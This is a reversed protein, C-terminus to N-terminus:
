RSARGRAEKLFLAAGNKLLTRALKKAAAQAQGCPAAIEGKVWANDNPSFVAASMWFMNKVSKTVVGVPVRCGGQLEKLLAREASVEHATPPHHLSQAIKLTEKDNKRGQIALAGQGVAPLMHQTSIVTARDLFKNLRLLGARAVVVADLTHHTLVRQVRTELNGRLDVLKLDPRLFAIQRRRRPSGTGVEAGKPLSRLTFGERSILVDRTDARKPIAAIVLGNSIKTPLDKMSHIALDVNGLLLSKEIAKTFVGVNTRRFIEVSQFEDGFTKIPVLEFTWAPYKKQLARRVEGAQAM